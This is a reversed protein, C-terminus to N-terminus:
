PSRETGGCTATGRLRSAIQAPASRSRSRPTVTSSSRQARSDRAMYASSAGYAAVKAALAAPINTVESWGLRSWVPAAGPVAVLESRTIQPHAELCAALLLRALGRGRAHPAVSLDHIYWVDGVAETLVTDPAPPSMSPWPHSLLYADLRGDREAAWCWDPATAIRSAFAAEGDRIAPPYCDAQIALAQDLDRQTLPRVLVTLVGRVATGM